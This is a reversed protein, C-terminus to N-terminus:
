IRVPLTVQPEIITLVPFSKLIDTYLTECKPAEITLILAYPINSASQTPSCANRAIYHIEFVPCDLSTARMRQESHLVNEWKHEIHRKDYESSYAKGAFFSKSNPSSNKIKNKNPRFVVELASKTYAGPDQPDVQTSYCFTAKLTIMGELGEPPIPLKAQIYKGPLLEGQYVIRAVGMPCTIIEDISNPLNGWGVDTSDYNNKQAAHILLAKIALPSLKDGLIARIGIATRLAYPAAFSTGQEPRICATESPQLVHFYHQSDGGFALIDPKVVGPRRGPGLASYSARSWYANSTNTAAGVALANVCDAPVQIRANGSLRDNQGNNGIAVTMFTKGDALASDIVATWPHIDDDEIPLDPGLSLNIFEFQRSLLVEEIKTLTRYLELPDEDRSESDLVRLNTVYSYPREAVHGPDLPGFLLASTAALGHEPGSTIDEQEPALRIYRELWPAIPHKEPLGADLIAVRPNRSLPEEVPLICPTSISSSRIEPIINRLRAMGRITRIFAFQALMELHQVDGQVPIFCLKGVQFSYKWYVTFGLKKAYAAFFSEIGRGSSYEDNFRHLVIEFFNENDPHNRLKSQPEFYQVNEIHSFQNAAKSTIEYSEIISHFQSLKNRKGAVYFELTTTETVPKKRNWKQPIINVTKSGLHRLEFSSMFSAPYDSKSICSPNMVVKFVGYNDPCVDNPLDKIKNYVTDFQPLLRDKAEDFTYISKGPNNPGKPKKIPDILMKGNGILFNMNSM